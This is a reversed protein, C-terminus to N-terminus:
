SVGHVPLEQLTFGFSKARRHLNALVRQRYREEYYSARPDTYDMGYRLTNYFLVAIKRATLHAGPSVGTVSLCAQAAAKVAHTRAGRCANQGQVDCGHLQTPLVRSWGRLSRNLEAIIHPMPIPARRRETLAKARDKIRQVSRRSPEVHTANAASAAAGSTSVSDM